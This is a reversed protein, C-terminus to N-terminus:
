KVDKKAGKKPDVATPATINNAAELKAQREKEVNALLEKRFEENGFDFLSYNFEFM